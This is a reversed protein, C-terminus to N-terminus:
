PHITNCFMGSNFGFEVDKLLAQRTESLSLGGFETYDLSDAIFNLQTLSTASQNDKIIKRKWQIKLEMLHWIDLVHKWDNM